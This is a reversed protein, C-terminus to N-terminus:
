IGAFASDVAKSETVVVDGDTQVEQDVTTAIETHQSKRLIAIEKMYSELQQLLFNNQDTLQQIYTDKKKLEEKQLHIKTELDSLKEFM